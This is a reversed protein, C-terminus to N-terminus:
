VPHFATKVDHVCHIFLKDHIPRSVGLVDHHSTLVPSPRVFRPPESLSLARFLALSDMSDCMFARTSSKWIHCHNLVWSRITTNEFEVQLWLSVWLSAMDLNYTFIQAFQMSQFTNGSITLEYPFAQISHVTRTYVASCCTACLRSQSPHPPTSPQSFRFGRIFPYTSFSRTWVDLALLIFHQYSGWDPFLYHEQNNMKQERSSCSRRSAGPGPPRFRSLLWPADSPSNSASVPHLLPALETFSPTLHHPPPEM